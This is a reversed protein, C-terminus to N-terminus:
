VLAIPILLSFTDTLPRILVPIHYIIKYKFYLTIRSWKPKFLIINWGIARLEVAESVLGSLWRSPWHTIITKIKIVSDDDNEDRKDASRSSWMLLYDRDCDCLLSNWYIKGIFRISWNYLYRRWLKYWYSGQLINIILKELEETM